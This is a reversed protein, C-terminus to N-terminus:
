DPSCEGAFKRSYLQSRREQILSEGRRLADYHDACLWMGHHKIGAPRGCEYADLMRDPTIGDAEPFAQYEAMTLPLPNQCHHM